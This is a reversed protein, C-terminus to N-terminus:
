LISESLFCMRGHPTTTKTTEGLHSARWRVPILHISISFRETVLASLQGWFLRCLAHPKLPTMTQKGWVEQQSKNFLQPPLCKCKLCLPFVEIVEFWWGQMIWKWFVQPSTHDHRQRCLHLCIGVFGCSCPVHRQTSLSLHSFYSDLKM